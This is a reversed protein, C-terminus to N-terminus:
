ARAEKYEQLLLSCITSDVLEGSKFRAQRRVGEAVFGFNDLLSKVSNGDVIEIWVKNLALEDFCFELVKEVAGFGVNTNPVSARTNGDGHMLINIEANRSVWDISTISCFGLINLAFGGDRLGKIAFHYANSSNLQAEYRENLLDLGLERHEVIYSRMSNALSKMEPIDNKEIQVLEIKSYTM